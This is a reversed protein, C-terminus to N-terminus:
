CYPQLLELIKLLPVIDSKSFQDLRNSDIDLVAVVEDDKLLPIVIESKSRSDCAIHGPFKEVDAVVVAQKTRVCHLCVGRGKLVQCSVPGQYPGVHLTDPGEVFYFGTWFHHPMKAHLVACITAMAALLNPSKDEILGRLQDTIRAYRNLRSEDIM